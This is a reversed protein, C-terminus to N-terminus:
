KKESLRTQTNKPNDADIHRYFPQNVGTKKPPPNNNAGTQSDIRSWDRGPRGTGLDNNTLVHFLAAISEFLSFASIASIHSLSAGTASSM